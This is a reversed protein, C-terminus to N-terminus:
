KPTLKVIHGARELWYVSKDDVAIDVPEDQGTALVTPTGGAIPVKLISGVAPTAYGSTQDIWYVNTDDVALTIPRTQGTALTTQPSGGLAKIISDKTTFFISGAHFAIDEGGNTPAIALGAGGDVTVDLVRM